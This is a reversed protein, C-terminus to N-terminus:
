ESGSKGIRVDKPQELHVPEGGEGLWPLKGVRGGRCTGMM